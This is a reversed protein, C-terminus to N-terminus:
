RSNPRRNTTLEFHISTAAIPGYSGAPRRTTTYMYVRARRDCLTAKHSPYRVDSALSLKDLSSRSTSCPWAMQRHKGQQRSKRSKRHEALQNNKVRVLDANTRNAPLSVCIFRSHHPLSGGNAVILGTEYHFCKLHGRPWPLSDMVDLRLPVAKGYTTRLGSVSRLPTTRTSCRQPRRWCSLHNKEEVAKTV